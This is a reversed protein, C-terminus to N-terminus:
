KLIIWRARARGMPQQADYLSHCHVIYVVTRRANERMRTVCACARHVRPRGLSYELSDGLRARAM